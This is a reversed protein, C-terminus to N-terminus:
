RRQDISESDGNRFAAITSNDLEPHGTSKVTEVLRVTGDARIHLLFVGTGTMHRSQGFYTYEPKAAYTAVVVSQKASGSKDHNANQATGVAAVFVLAVFATGGISKSRIVDPRHVSLLQRRRRPRQRRLLKRLLRTRPGLAPM